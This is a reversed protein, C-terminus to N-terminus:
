GTRQLFNMWLVTMILRPVKRCWRAVLAEGQTLERSEFPKIIIDDARYRAADEDVCEFAGALLIM